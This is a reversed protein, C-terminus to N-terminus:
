FCSHNQVYFTPVYAHDLRLAIYLTFRFSSGCEILTRKDMFDDQKECYLPVLCLPVLKIGRYKQKHIDSVIQAEYQYYCHYRFWSQFHWNTFRLHRSNEVWSFLKSRSLTLPTGYRNAFSACSVYLDHLFRIWSEVPQRENPTWNTFLTCYFKHVATVLYFLACYTTSNVRGQLVCSCKLGNYKM